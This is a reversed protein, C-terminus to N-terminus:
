TVETTDSETHGWPSYGKLIGQGHNELCSHQLPNGHGGGPPRGWGPISGVGRLDGSNAPLTKVALVVQPTRVFDGPSGKFYVQVWAGAWVPSGPM